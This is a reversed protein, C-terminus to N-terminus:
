KKSFKEGLYFLALSIAIILVAKRSPFYNASFVLFLTGLILLTSPKLAISQKFESSLNQLNM